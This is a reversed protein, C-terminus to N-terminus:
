SGGLLSHTCWINCMLLLQCVFPSGYCTSRSAAGALCHQQAFEFFFGPMLRLAEYRKNYRNPPCGVILREEDFCPKIQSYRM